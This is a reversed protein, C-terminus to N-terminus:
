QRTARTIMQLMKKAIIIQRQGWGNATQENFAFTPAVSKIGIAKKLNNSFPNNLLLLTGIIIGLLVVTILITILLKKKTVKQKKM